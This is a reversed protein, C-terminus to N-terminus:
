PAPEWRVEVPAGAASPLVVQAPEFRGGDLDVLRHPGAPIGTLTSRRELDFTVRRGRLLNTDGIVGELAQWREQATGGRPLQLRIAVDEDLLFLRHRRPPRESEEHLALQLSSGRTSALEALRPAAGAPPVVVTAQAPAYSRDHPSAVVTLAGSPAEVELWGQPDPTSRRTSGLLRSGAAGAASANLEFERLPRGDAADVLRVRLRGLETVVLRVDPDGALAEVPESRWRGLVQLTWPRPLAPLELAFRGDAATTAVLSAQEGALTAVVELGPVGDGRQTRVSGRTTEMALALELDQEVEAGPAVQVVVAQGALLPGLRGSGASPEASLEVQGAEVGELVFSGTADAIGNGAGTGGTWAVTGGTPEGNLTLRGRV